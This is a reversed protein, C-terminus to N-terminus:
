DTLTLLVESPSIIQRSLLFASYASFPMLANTSFALREVEDLPRGSALATRIPDTIQLVELVAVRGVYGSQGCADCGVARPLAAGSSRDAIGRAVLSDLLAPPPEEIVRCAGCLKRVLRQVIILQLGQAIIARGCGLNELRQLTSLADSAHLSTLLLHGTIAAELALEATEHDRTEGVVIVDPDQRMMARLVQPFQMGANPNVQVQVVGQLRYEIPDEVMIVNSDPRTLRREHLISYLTSTKGSGTPGAVIIGGFPRNLARRVAGLGGPELFVTELDRSGGAGELLRIAIKEGRNAPLTSIRLDVERKGATLGIRGDQPLRKETIDLGALIKLRASIGKLTCTPPVPESWDSLVGQTRFRIRPTGSTPEIHVDSAERDLAAGILKNVFRVVEDGAGRAPERESDAATEFVLSDPNVGAPAGPKGGKAAAAAARADDLRLRVLANNFDDGSIAVVELDVAPLTRKLEALAQVNRPAVMAVTLTRGTLRVPLMRHLRILKTPVMALVSPQLDFERLEVFPLHHDASREAGPEVPAALQADPQALSCLRGVQRAMREALAGGFAPFKALLLLAVEARLWLVRSPEDAIVSYPSPSGLLAAVEGFHEGPLLMEVRSPALAGPVLLSVSGELLLGIGEGPAGAAILEAGAPYALATLDPAVRALVAPDCRHFLSTQPLFEAIAELPVETPVAESM